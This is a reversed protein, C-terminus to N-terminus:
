TLRPELNDSTPCGHVPSPVVPLNYNLATMVRVSTGPSTWTPGARYRGLVGDQLTAGPVRHGNSLNTNNARGQGNPILLVTSVINSLDMNKSVGMGSKGPPSTISM